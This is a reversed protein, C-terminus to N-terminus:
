TGSWRMMCVDDITSARHEIEIERDRTTHCMWQDLVKLLAPDIPMVDQSYWLWGPYRDIWSSCVIASSHDISQRTENRAMRTVTHNHTPYRAHPTGTADISRERPHVRETGRPERLKEDSRRAIM